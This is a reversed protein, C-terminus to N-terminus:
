SVYREMDRFTLWCPAEADKIMQVAADLDGAPVEAKNVRLLVLGPRVLGCAEAPGKLAAFKKVCTRGVRNVGFVIGLQGEDFSTDYSRGQPAPGRGDESDAADAATTPEPPRMFRVTFCMGPKGKVKMKAMKLMKIVQPYQLDKPAAPAIVPRGAIAEVVDGTKIVGSVEAAGPLPEFGTVVIHGKEGGETGGLCDLKLAPPWENFRVVFDSNYLFTLKLPGAGGKTKDSEAKFIEKCEEFGKERLSLENVGVLVDGAKIAECAEAPCKVGDAAESFGRVLLARGSPKREKVRLGIKREVDAQTFTVVYENKAATDEATAEKFRMHLPRKSRMLHVIESQMMEAVMCGNVAMLLAGMKVKGTAEAPGKSGDSMRSFGVVVPNASATTPDLRLGLPGRKEVIIDCENDKCDGLQKAMMEVDGETDAQPLTEITVGANKMIMPWYPDCYGNITTLLGGMNELLEETLTSVIYEQILQSFVTALFNYVWAFYSGEVTLELNQLDVSSSKLALRPVSKGAIVVRELKFGLTVTGDRVAADALGGGSMFPFYMQKYSWRLKPIHATVDTATITLIEGTEGTNGLVVHVKEKKIKFGGLDLDGVTYQVQDKEGDIPPVEISPLYSMLFDLASDKVKNALREREDKDTAVKEGWDQWEKVDLKGITEVVKSEDVNELYTAASGMLGDATIAGGGAGAAEQLQKVLGDAIGKHADILKSAQEVYKKGDEALLKNARATFEPVMDTAKALLRDASLDDKSVGFDKLMDEGKAMLEKARDGEMAEKLSSEISMGSFKALEAAKDKAANPDASEVASLAGSAGEQLAAQAEAAKGTALEQLQKIQDTAGITSALAKLRDAIATGKKSAALEKLKDVSGVESVLGSIAKNDEFQKQMEALKERGLKIAESDETMQALEASAKELSARLEATKEYAEKMAALSPKVLHANTAYFRSLGVQADSLMEAATGIYASSKSTNIATYEMIKARLDPPILAMSSPAYSEVDLSPFVLGHQLYAVCGIKMAIEYTHTAPTSDTAPTYNAAKVTGQGFPTAVVSDVSPIYEPNVFAADLYAVAGNQVAVTYV